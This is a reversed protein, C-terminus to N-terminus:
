DIKLNLARIIRENRRMEARLFADFEEPSIASPTLGQKGLVDKVEALQLARAIEASLREIVNRPVAARIVAGFWNLAEFGPFGSEAVTPIDPLTDARALSTVAIGRLRGSAIHAVSEAINVILIANHGGIVSTAALAAGNYPVNVINIGAAEKLLEGAIRQGGM